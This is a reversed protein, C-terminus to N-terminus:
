TEMVSVGPIVISHKLWGWLRLYVFLQVSNSFIFQPPLHWKWRVWQHTPEKKQLSFGSVCETNSAVSFLPFSKSTGALTPLQHTQPSFFWKTQTKNYVTQGFFKTKLLKRIIDYISLIFFDVLIVFKDTTSIFFLFLSFPQFFFVWTHIM